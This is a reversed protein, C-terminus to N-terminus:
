YIAFTLNWFNLIRYEELHKEKLNERQKRLKMEGAQVGGERLQVWMPMQHSLWM